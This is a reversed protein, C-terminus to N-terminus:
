LSYFFFTFSRVCFQVEKKENVKWESDRKKWERERARKRYTHQNCSEFVFFFNNRVVSYKIQNKKMLIWMKRETKGYEVFCFQIQKVLRTYIKRHTNLSLKDHTKYSNIYIKKRRKEKRRKKQETQAGHLIRNNTKKKRWKSSEVHFKSLVGNIKYVFRYKFM